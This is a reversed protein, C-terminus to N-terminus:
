FQNILRFHVKATALVDGKGLAFDFGIIGIGTGQRFGVGYGWPYDHLKKLLLDASNLTDPIEVEREYYGANFFAYIRSRKDVWLRYEISGWGILHGLFQDERYGRLSMAGGLRYLDPEPVPHEDSFLFRSHIQLDLIQRGWLRCAWEGDSEYRRLDVNDSPASTEYDKQAASAYSRYYLGRTPNDAQDRQDYDLHLAAGRSLSRYLNLLSRGSSDPLVEDQFVSGGLTLIELAPWNIGASLSRTLYLTDQIEQRFEGWLSFPAGLVWPEEYYLELAQRSNSSREWRIKAKRGTGFLNQFTLDLLGTVQGKQGASGPQYGLVGDFSNARAEAVTFFLDYRDAGLPLLAPESVEEIFSLKRLRQQAREIKSPRYLEGPVIRAERAVVRPKTQQLGGIKVSQLIVQPGSTLRVRLNLSDNEFNIKQLDLRALPFGEEAKNQLYDWLDEDLYASFVPDGKRSQPFLGERTKLTDGVISWERLILREGEQLYIALDVQTSDTQWATAASDIRSFYFGEEALQNLLRVAAEEVLKQNYAQGARLGSLQLLSRQSHHRNGTFTVVRIVPNAALASLNIGLLCIFMGAFLSRKILSLSNM